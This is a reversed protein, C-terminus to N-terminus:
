WRQQPPIVSRSAPPTVTVVSSGKKGGSTATITATGAAVATVVGTSAVTAVKTKSSEWSIPRNVVITGNVDTVIATLAATGPVAITVTAPSVTVTAVPAATVTVASTGSKGESTATITTSGVAVGTVVGTASVSAVAATSSTWTVVRGTLITGTADKTTATLQKTAGVAVSATAPAVTVTAVPASVVVAATGSRGESTATITATGPAVATVVGSTSVTAIAANSSTWTVVRNTVVTGATDKVTVSLTATQGTFLSTSAPSLAVSGVPVPPVPNVTVTATGSKGESTATVTATGAAVGSVVGAPSVTAVAAPSSSWTVTRGSLTNGASDKVVTTLTTTQGATVSTTPPQVSVVAVPVPTVTVSASGTQGESTASITAVGLTVGTVVGTGSVTAIATNSSRWAVARDNALAGMVDRVIATLQVSAGQIVSSAQPQVTVSGVPFSSVTLASTGDHGEVTATITATGPAVATVLGQSTVAAVGPRSTSWTVPRGTLVAGGADRATASMQTTQGASMSLINPVVDVAAVPTQTVTVLCSGSRGEVTGTITASGPAVASVVGAADVTAVLVNSTTWVIPRGTLGNGAADYAIGTLSVRAGPIADILGPLVVVTAVPTKNVTIVAVGSKGNASAAVETAGVALGTVVGSASVRAIASDQATWLLTVGALTNGSADQAVAQLPVQAGVLVTQTPPSVVVRAVPDVENVDTASGCSWAAIAAIWVLRRGDLRSRISRMGAGWHAVRASSM